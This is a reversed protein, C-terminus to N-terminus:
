VRSPLYLYSTLATHVGKHLNIRVGKFDNFFTIKIWDLCRRHKCHLVKAIFTKKIVFNTRRAAM